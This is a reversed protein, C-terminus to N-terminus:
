KEGAEALMKAVLRQALEDERISQAQELEGVHQELAAHSELVAAHQGVLAQHEDASIYGDQRAAQGICGERGDTKACLVIETDVPIPGNVTQVNWGAVKYVVFPGAVAMCVTCGQQHEDVRIVDAM